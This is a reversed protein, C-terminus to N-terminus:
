DNKIFYIQGIRVDIIETKKYIIRKLPKNEISVVLYEESKLDKVKQLISDKAIREDEYHEVKSSVFYNFVYYSTSQGFKFFLTDVLSNKNKLKIELGSKTKLFFDKQDFKVRRWHHNSFNSKSIFITGGPLSNTSFLISFQNNTINSYVKSFDEQAKAYNLNLFYFFILIINKNNIM